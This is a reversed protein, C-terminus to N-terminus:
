LKSKKFLGRCAMKADKNVTSMIIMNGKRDAAYLVYLRVLTTFYGLVMYLLLQQFRALTPTM